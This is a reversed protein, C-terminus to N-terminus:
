LNKILNSRTESVSRMLSTATSYSEDRKDVLSQLRTMDNQSQTNLSDIASKVRQTYYECNSKSLTHNGAAFSTGLLEAMARAGETSFSQTVSNNEDSKYHAQYKSLDSLARGLDDLKSNRRRMNTSLPLIQNEISIARKEAVAILLDQFDVKKGNYVYDSATINWMALNSNTVAVNTIAM